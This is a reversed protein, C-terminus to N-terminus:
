KTVKLWRGLPALGIYLLWGAFYIGLCQILGTIPLFWNITGLFSGDVVGSSPLSSSAPFLGIVYTAASALGAILLNILKILSNYLLGLLRDIASSIFDTLWSFDM